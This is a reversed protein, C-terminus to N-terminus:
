QITEGRTETTAASALSGGAPPSCSRRSLRQAFHQSSCGFEARSVTSRAAPLGRRWCRM